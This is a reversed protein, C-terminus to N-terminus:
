EAMKTALESQPTKVKYDKVDASLSKTIILSSLDIKNQVLRTVTEKVYELAGKVDREILVKNLTTKLVDRVLKCNDRRVLEIGKADMKDFAEIRTYPMGVYRKKNILLYPYYVKEFEIKLPNIFNKNIFVEADKGFKFAAEMMEKSKKETQEKSNNAINKNISPTEIGHFIDVMVSDTDGYIVKTNEFNEEVLKATKMIMERGYGTVSSSVELCPLRGNSTGTVGYISNAVYKYALQRGNLVTTLNPNSNGIEKIQKRTNRRAELLSELIIPLVGRKHIFHFGVPSKDYNAIITDNLHQPPVLTSYCINHALMISPYLSAFDLTVIPKNYFGRLPEICIAGEYGGDNIVNKPSPIFLSIEPEKCRTYLLSFMKLQQGAYLADTLTFGTVRSMEVSNIFLLLKYCLKLPLLADKLCYSALRKRDDENGKWLETIISYHVDEKQEKLFVSSVTNLSYSSLKHQQKIVPFCDLLVRGPCSIQRADVAFAKTELPVKLHKTKSRTIFVAEKIDLAVCRKYFYIFDFGIINYGTIVDPDVRNLYNSFAVLMERETNFSIIKSGPISSTKKFCFVSRRIEKDNFPNSLAQMVCVGIQIIPDITPDPFIHERMACEIDFSLVKIEKVESFDRQINEKNDNSITTFTPPTRTANSLISHSANLEIQCNSIKNSLSVKHFKSNQSLDM